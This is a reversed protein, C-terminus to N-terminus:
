RLYYAIGVLAVCIIAVAVSLLIFSTGIDDERTWAVQVPERVSPRVARPRRRQSSKMEDIVGPGNKLIREDDAMVSPAAVVADQQKLKGGCNYCFDSGARIDADCGPCSTNDIVSTKVSDNKV